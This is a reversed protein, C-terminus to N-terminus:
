IRRTKLCAYGHVQAQLRYEYMGFARNQFYIEGLHGIKIYKHGEGLVVGSLCVGHCCRYWGDIDRVELESCSKMHKSVLEMILQASTSVVTRWRLVLLCWHPHLKIEKRLSKQNKLAATKRWPLATKRQGHSPQHHSASVVASLALGKVRPTNSQILVLSRWLM